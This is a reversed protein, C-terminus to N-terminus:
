FGGHGVLGVGVGAKRVQDVGREGSRADDHLDVGGVEGDGVLDVIRRDAFGVDAGFLAMASASEAAIGSMGMTASSSAHASLRASTPRLKRSTSGSSPVLSNMLRLPSNVTLMASTSSPSVPSPRAGRGPARGQRHRFRRRPMSPCSRSPDRAGDTSPRGDPHARGALMRDRDRAARVHIGGGGVRERLGPATLM